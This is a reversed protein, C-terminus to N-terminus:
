QTTEPAVPEHVTAEPFPSRPAALLPSRTGRLTQDFFALIYQRLIPILHAPPIEGAYSFRQLPSTLIGDQFSSHLTGHLSIFYSGPRTFMPMQHQYDGEDIEADRRQGFSMHARDDPSTHALDENLVMIPQTIGHERAQAYVPTDMDVVARIAPDRWALDAAVGGGLSYGLAGIRSFDIRHYFPSGAVENMLRLQGLIFLTDDTEKAVEKNIIDYVKDKPTVDDSLEPAPLPRIVRGDPLAVPGSNYPHDIAVVIYGHSALDETLMTDQTRRGNWGPNYLLLPLNTGDVPADYRSRTWSVSQYSSFFTTESRRRYPARPNTSALAPYWVQAVLERPHTRSPEADEIRNTDTFPLIRTGTAYPGTPAPIRFIPLVWSLTCASVVLLFTILVTTIALGRAVRRGRLLVLLLLAAVYDPIMQWHAGEWSIHVAFAAGLLAAFLMRAPASRRGQEQDRPNSSVQLWLALVIGLLILCTIAIELLRVNAL